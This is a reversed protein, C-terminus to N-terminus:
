SDNRLKISPIVGFIRMNHKASIFLTRKLRKKKKELRAAVETYGVAVGCADEANTRYTNFMRPIVTSMEVFISRFTMTQLTKKVVLVSM